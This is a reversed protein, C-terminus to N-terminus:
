HSESSLSIVKKGDRNVEVEMRLTTTEHDEKSFLCLIERTRIPDCEWLLLVIDQNINKCYSLYLSVSWERTIINGNGIWAKVFLMLKKEDLEWCNVLFIWKLTVRKTGAYCHGQFGRLSHQTKCNSEKAFSWTMTRVNVWPLKLNLFHSVGDWEREQVGSLLWAYTNAVSWANVRNCWEYLRRGVWSRRRRFQLGANLM